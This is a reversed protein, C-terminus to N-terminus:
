SPLPRRLFLAAELDIVKDAIQQPNVEYAEDAIRTRLSHVRRTDIDPTVPQQDPMMIPLGFRTTRCTLEAGPCSAQSMLVITRAAAPMSATKAASRVFRFIAMYRRSAAMDACVQPCHPGSVIRPQCGGRAAWWMGPIDHFCLSFDAPQLFERIPVCREQARESMAKVHMAATTVM